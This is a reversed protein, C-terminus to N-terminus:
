FAPKSSHAKDIFDIVAKQYKYDELRISVGSFGLKPGKFQFCGIGVNKDPNSCWQYSGGITGNSPQGYKELAAAKMSQANDQTWPMEYIVIGVLMPNSKDTPIKPFFYVTLEGSGNTATFYTPERSNTVQNLQPFKDFEISHKDIKLRATAAAVAESQTMGLKVGSVDFQSADVSRAVDAAYTYMTTATMVFFVSLSLTRIMM